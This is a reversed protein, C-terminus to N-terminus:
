AEGIETRIEQFVDQTGYLISQKVQRELGSYAARLRDQLQGYRGIGSLDAQQSVTRIKADREVTISVSVRVAM